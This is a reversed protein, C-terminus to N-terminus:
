PQLQNQLSSILGHSGSALKPELCFPCTPVAVSQLGWPHTPSPSSTPSNWDKWKEWSSILAQLTSPIIDGGGARWGELVTYGPLLHANGLRHVSQLGDTHMLIFTVCLVWHGQLSSNLVAHSGAERGTRLLIPNEDKPLVQKARGNIIWIAENIVESGSANAKSLVWLTPFCM